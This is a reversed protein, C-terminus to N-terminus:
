PITPTETAAVMEVVPHSRGLAAGGAAVVLLSALIVAGGLPTGGWDEGTVLPACLVPVLTEIVFIPPGVRAATRLQLASMEGLLGGVASAAAGAGWAIALGIRGAALEDVLLKSMIASASFAAGAGIVILGGAPRGARRAVYPALAGSVIAALVIWLVPGTTYTESNEPASLAIGTVGGIVALAALVQATRVREGLVRSGLALLLLIGVAFTPQVLTLPALSLAALQLPWGAGALAAAALWRPRRVLKALLSLRLSDAELRRAEMAQFVTAGDFCGAACAALGLGALNSGDIV